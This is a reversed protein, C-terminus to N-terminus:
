KVEVFKDYPFPKGLNIQKSIAKHVKLAEDSSKFAKKYMLVKGNINGALRNYSYKKGDKVVSFPEVWFHGLRANRRMGASGADQAPSTIFQELEKQTPASENLSIGALQQMRENIM